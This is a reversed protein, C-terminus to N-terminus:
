SRGPYADVRVQITQGTRVASLFKEAVRFDVKIPDIDELNVVDQGASIYDGISVQRLGAIGDFPASIRTRALRARALELSATGIDLGSRAEDRSRATAVNRVHLEEIRQFNSEALRLQAEAEGLEARFLSDDLRLLLAGRAVPQGEEFDIGVVRGAIEPRIVVSENSRLSGIATVRELIPRLEVRAAEVPVAPADGSAGADQALAPPTAALLLLAAAALRIGPRLPGAGASRFAAIMTM